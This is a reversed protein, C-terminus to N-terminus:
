FRKWSDGRTDRCLSKWPMRASNCGRISPYDMTLQRRKEIELSAALPKVLAVEQEPGSGGRDGRSGIEGNRQFDNIVM